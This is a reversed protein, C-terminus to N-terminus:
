GVTACAVGGGERLYYRRGTTTDHVHILTTGGSSGTMETELREIKGQVNRWVEYGGAPDPCSPVPNEEPGTFSDNPASSLSFFGGALLGCETEGPLDILQVTEIQVGDSVKSNKLLERYWADTMNFRCKPAIEVLTPKPVTTRDDPLFPKMAALLDTPKYKLQQKIIGRVAGKIGLSTLFLLKNKTEEDNWAWCYNSAPMRLHNLVMRPAAERVNPFHVELQPWIAKLDAAGVQTVLCGLASEANHDSYGSAFLEPWLEPPIQGALFLGDPYVIPHGVRRWLTRWTEAPLPYIRKPNKEDPIQVMALLALTGVAASARRELIGPPLAALTKDFDRASRAHIRILNSIATDDDMLQAYVDPPLKGIFANWKRIREQTAQAIKQDPLPNHAVWSTRELIKRAIEVESVSLSSTPLTTPDIEGPDPPYPVAKEITSKVGYQEQLLQTLANRKYRLSLGLANETGGKLTQHPDAGNKLLWVAAKTQGARIAHHLLTGFHRYANFDAGAKKKRALYAILEAESQQSFDDPVPFDWQGTEPEAGPMSLLAAFAEDTAQDSAAYLNASVLALIAFIFVRRVASCTAAYGMRIITM